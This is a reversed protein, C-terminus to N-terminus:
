KDVMGTGGCTGCKQKKTGTYVSYRGSGFCSPCQDNTVTQGPMNRLSDLRPDKGTGNCTVCKGGDDYTAVSVEGTGNCSSCEVQGCGALILGLTMTMATIASITKKNM